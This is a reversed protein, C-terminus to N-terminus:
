RACDWWIAGVQGRGLMVSVSVPPSVPPSVPAPVSPLVTPHLSTDVSRDLPKSLSSDVAMDTATALTGGIHMAGILSKVALDVAMELFVEPTEADRRSSSSSTSSGSILRGGSSSTGSTHQLVCMVSAVVCLEGGERSEGGEGGGQSTAMESGASLVYVCPAASSGAPDSGGDQLDFRQFARSGFRSDLTRVASNDASRDLTEAAINGTSRDTSLLSVSLVSCLHSADTVSVRDMPFIFRPVHLPSYSYTGVIDLSTCYLYTTM